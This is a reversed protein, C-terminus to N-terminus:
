NHKLIYQTHPIKFSKFIVLLVLVCLHSEYRINTSTVFDLLINIYFFEYMNVYNYGCYFEM